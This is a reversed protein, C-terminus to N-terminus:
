FKGLSLNNVKQDEQPVLGGLWSFISMHIPLHRLELGGLFPPNAFPGKTFWDSFSVYGRFLPWFWLPFNMLGLWGNDPAFQSNTEPDPYITRLWCLCSSRKLRKFVRTTLRSCKTRLQLQAQSEPRWRWLRIAPISGPLNVAPVQFDDRQFPFDDEM